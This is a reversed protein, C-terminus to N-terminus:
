LFVTVAVVVTCALLMRFLIPNESRCKEKGYYYKINKALSVYLLIAASSIIAFVAETFIDGYLIDWFMNDRNSGIITAAIMTILLLLSQQVIVMRKFYRDKSAGAVVILISSAALAISFVTDAVLDSLSIKMLSSFADRVFYILLLITIGYMLKYDKLQAEQEKQLAAAEADVHLQAKTDKHEPQPELKKMNKVCKVCFTNEDNNEHACYPCQM